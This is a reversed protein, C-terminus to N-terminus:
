KAALVSPAGHEGASSALQEHVQQQMALLKAHEEQLKVLKDADSELQADSYLEHV